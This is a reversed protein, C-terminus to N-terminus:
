YGDGTWRPHWTHPCSFWLREKGPTMEGAAGIPRYKEPKRNYAITSEFTRSIRDPYEAAIKTAAKIPPFSAAKPRM